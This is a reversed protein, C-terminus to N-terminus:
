NAFIHAGWSWVTFRSSLPTGTFYHGASTDVLDPILTYLFTGNVDRMPALTINTWQNETLRSSNSSVIKAETFGDLYPSVEISGNHDSKNIEFVNM